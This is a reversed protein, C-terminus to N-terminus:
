SSPVHGKVNPPPVTPDFQEAARDSVSKGLQQSQIFSSAFPLSSPKLESILLSSSSSPTSSSSFSVQQDLTDPNIAYTNGDNNNINNNKNTSNSTNFQQQWKKINRQENNNSNESKCIFKEQSPYNTSLPPPLTLPIEHIHIPEYRAPRSQPQCKMPGCSFHAPQPGSVHQQQPQQQQQLHPQQPEHPTTTIATNMYNIDHSSSNYPFVNYSNFSDCANSVHQSNSATPATSSSSSSSSSSISPNFISTSINISGIDMNEINKNNNEDPVPVELGVSGGRIEKLTASIQDDLSICDDSLADNNKDNKIETKSDETTEMSVDGSDKYFHLKSKFFDRSNLKVDNNNKRKGGHLRDDSQSDYFATPPAFEKVRESRRKKLWVEDEYFLESKKGVDWERVPANKRWSDDRKWEEIIDEGDDCEKGALVDANNPAVDPPRPGTFAEENEDDDDEYICTMFTSNKDVITGHHRNFSLTSTTMCNCVMINMEFVSILFILQFANFPYEGIFTLPDLGSLKIAEQVISRQMVKALRIDLARKRKEKLSSFIKRQIKTQQRLQDLVKMQEKRTEEDRAFNYFGVGHDRIENFTVDSYHIEDKMRMKTVEEEWKRREIERRMDNSMLEPEVMSNNILEKQDPKNINLKKDLSKFHELDKKLCRRTRGLSDEFEVWQEDPNNSKYLSGDDDDGDNEYEDDDENDSNKRKVGPRNVNNDNKENSTLKARAAKMKEELLNQKRKKEISKDIVKQEFDVLFPLKQYDEDNLMQQSMKEYLKAKKELTNKSKQFTNLEELKEELDKQSRKDVGVNKKEVSSKTEIKRKKIPRSSNELKLRKFEDQKKILEAKLQMMSDGSINMEKGKHFM